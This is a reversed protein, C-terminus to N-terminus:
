RNVGKLSNLSYSMHEHKLLLAFLLVELSPVHVQQPNVSVVALFSQTATLSTLNPKWLPYITVFITEGIFCSSNFEKVAVWIFMASADPKMHTLFLIGM